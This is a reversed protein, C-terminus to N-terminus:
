QSALVGDLGQRPRVLQRQGGGRGACGHVARRASEGFARALTAPIAAPGREPDASPPVVTWMGRNSGEGAGSPEYRTVTTSPASWPRTKSTPASADRTNM